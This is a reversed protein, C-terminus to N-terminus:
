NERTKRRKQVTKPASTEFRLQLQQCPLENPLIAHKNRICILTPPHLGYCKSPSHPISSTRM